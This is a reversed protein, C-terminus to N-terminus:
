PRLGGISSAYFGDSYELVRNSMTDDTTEVLLLEGYRGDAQSYAELVIGHKRCVEALEDVAAQLEEKTKM